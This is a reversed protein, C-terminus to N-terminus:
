NALLPPRKNLTLWYLHLTTMMSVLDKFNIPKVLYSNAGLDYAQEIDPNESSATLIVVQLRKLYPQQRLWALVELGSRRPLKLDLLVLSPRPYQDEDASPTAQSLYQIAADGDSVVQLDLHDLNAQRLARRILLVDNSDDEVLLITHSDMIESM